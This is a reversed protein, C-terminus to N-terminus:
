GLMRVSPRAARETVEGDAVVGAATLDDEDAAIEDATLARMRVVDRREARGEGFDTM